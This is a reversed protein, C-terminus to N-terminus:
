GVATDFWDETDWEDVSAAEMVQANTGTEPPKLHESPDGGNLQNNILILPSGKFDVGMTSEPHRRQLLETLFQWRTRDLQYVRLKEGEYGEVKNSWHIHKVKVGLRDLLEHVIQTDSVKDSVTYNLLEKMQTKAARARDAVQQTDHKTWCKEPDLFETIGLNRLATAKVTDLGLTWPCLGQGWAVQQELNKLDRGQALSQIVLAEFAMFERRMKGDRDHLVVDADIESEDLRYFEALITKELNLQDEPSIADQVELARRETPS